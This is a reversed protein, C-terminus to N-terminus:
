LVSSETVGGIVEEEDEFIALVGISLEVLCNHSCPIPQDVLQSHLASLNNRQIPPIRGLIQHKPIRKLPHPSHRTKHIVIQRPLTQQMADVYTGYMDYPSDPPM